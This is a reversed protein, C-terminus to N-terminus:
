EEKASVMGKREKQSGRNETRLSAGEMVDQRYFATSKHFCFLFKTASVSFVLAPNLAGHICIVSCDVEVLYQPMLAKLNTRPSVSM